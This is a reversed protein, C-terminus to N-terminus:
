QNNPNYLYYSDHPNMLPPLSSAANLSADPQVTTGWYEEIYKEWTYNTPEPMARMGTDTVGTIIHDVWKIKVANNAFESWDGRASKEYFKKDLVQLSIGMKKAIRGGLRKWIEKLREYAEKQERLNGWSFTWPQHHLITANPYAYSQEALTTICAAMSAAFSKVVVYVPAQSNKMAKLIRWGAAVSGGPSNEIVIFIPYRTDKNNFYQIRDTVHNAKWPTIVGNLDVRRDSIVLSGKKKLPNKLYVAEGGAFTARQKKINLQGIEAQLKEAEMHLSKVQNHVKASTLNFQELVKAAQAQALAVEARIKEEQQQLALMEQAHAKLKKEQEAEWRLKIAEKELSLRQVEAQLAALEKELRARNLANELEIREQEQRKNRLAAPEEQKTSKQTNAKNKPTDAYAQVMTGYALGILFM